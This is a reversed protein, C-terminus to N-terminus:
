VKVPQQFLGEIWPLEDHGHFRADLSVEFFQIGAQVLIVLFSTLILKEVSQESEM